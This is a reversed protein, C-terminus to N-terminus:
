TLYRKILKWTSHISNVMVGNMIITSVCFVKHSLAGTCVLYTTVNSGWMLVLRGRLLSVFRHMHCAGGTRMELDFSHFVLGWKRQACGVLRCRGAGVEGQESAEEQQHWEQTHGHVARVAPAWLSHALLQLGRQGNVKQVHFLQQPAAPYPQGHLSQFQGCTAVHLRRENKKKWIGRKRDRFTGLGVFVEAMQCPETCQRHHQVVWGTFFPFWTRDWFYTAEMDTHIYTNLCHAQWEKNLNYHCKQVDAINISM